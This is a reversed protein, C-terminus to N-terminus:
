GAYKKGDPTKRGASEQCRLVIQDILYQIISSSLGKEQVLAALDSPLQEIGLRLEEGTKRQKFRAVTWMMVKKFTEEDIAASEEKQRELSPPPEPQPKVEEQDSPCVCPGEEVPEAEESEPEVVSEKEDFFARPEEEPEDDTAAAENPETIEAFFEDEPEEDATEDATSATRSGGRCFEEPMVVMGIGEGLEEAVPLLQALDLLLVPMEGWITVQPCLRAALRPCAPPLPGPPNLLAVGDAAIQDVVLFVGRLELCLADPPPTGGPQRALLAGLQIVPGGDQRLLPVAEAWPMRGLIDQESIGLLFSGGQVICINKM